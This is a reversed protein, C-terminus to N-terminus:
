RYVALVRIQRYKALVRAPVRYRYYMVPIKYLVPIQLDKVPLKRNFDRITTLNKINTTLPVRARARM